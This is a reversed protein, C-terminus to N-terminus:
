NFLKGKFSQLKNYFKYLSYNRLITKVLSRRPRTGTDFEPGLGKEDRSNQTPSQRTGGDRLNGDGDRKMGIFKPGPGPVPGPSADRGKVDRGTTSRQNQCGLKENVTTSNHYSLSFPRFSVTKWM